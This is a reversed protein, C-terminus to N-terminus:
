DYNPNLQPSSLSECSDEALEENELTRVVAVAKKKLNRKKKKQVEAAIKYSYKEINCVMQDIDDDAWPEIENVVSREEIRDLLVQNVKNVKKYM